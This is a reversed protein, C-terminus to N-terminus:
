LKKKEQKKEGKGLRVKSNKPASKPPTSEKSTSKSSALKKPTPKSSNDKRGIINKSTSHNMPVGKGDYGIVVIPSSANKVEKCEYYEEYECGGDKCVLELANVSLDLGLFKKITESSDNYPNKLSEFNMLEQLVYSYSRAPLNAEQDLPFINEKGSQKYCSREVILKGFISYYIRTHIRKARKYIGSITELETGLDGTGKESFYLKLVERALELVKKKIANEMEHAEYNSANTCVFNCIENVISNIPFLKNEQTHAQM